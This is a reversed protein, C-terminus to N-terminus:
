ESTHLTLAPLKNLLDTQGHLPLDIGRVDLHTLHVCKELLALLTAAGVGQTRAIILRRLEPCRDAILDLFVAGAGLVVGCSLAVRV